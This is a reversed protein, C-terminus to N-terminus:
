CLSYWVPKTSNISSREAGGIITGAAVAALFAFLHLQASRVGMGFHHILYFTYYSSISTLYVYKSFILVILVGLM